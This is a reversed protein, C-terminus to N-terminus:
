ESKSPFQFQELFYDILFADMQKVEGLGLLIKSYNVKWVETETCKM